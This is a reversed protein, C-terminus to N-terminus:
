TRPRLGIVGCVSLTIARPIYSCSMTRPIMRYIDISGLVKNIGSNLNNRAERSTELKAFLDGVEDGMYGMASYILYTSMITQRFDLILGLRDRVQVSDFSLFIEERSIMNNEDSLSFREQRDPDKLLATIDGENATAM